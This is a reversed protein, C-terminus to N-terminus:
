EGSGSEQVGSPQPGPMPGFNGVIGLGGLQGIRIFLPHRLALLPAGDEDDDESSGEGDDSDNGDETGEDEKNRRRKPPRCLSARLREAAHRKEALKNSIM